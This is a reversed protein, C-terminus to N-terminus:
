VGALWLKLTVKVGALMRRGTEWLSLPVACYKLMPSFLELSSIPKNHMYSALTHNLLYVAQDADFTCFLFLLLCIMSSAPEARCHALDRVWLSNNWEAAKTERLGVHKKKGRLHTKKKLGFALYIITMLLCSWVRRITRNTQLMLTQISIEMWGGLFCAQGYCAM